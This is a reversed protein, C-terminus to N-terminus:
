RKKIQDWIENYIKKLEQDKELKQEFRKVTSSVSSYKGIGFANAITKLSDGRRCRILFIALARPENVTGRRSIFLEEQSIGYYGCVADIIEDRKPLFIKSEPIEEKKTGNSFRRKIKEIFPDSGFIVGPKDENFMGNVEVPIEKEMFEQYKIRMQSKSNGLMSAITKKELWRWQLSDSLYAQYSCWPYDGLKKELGAKLANRHIYRISELLHGNEQILISKYRGRFLQGDLHHRRNFEQTYVGDIQRMSRSLNGLPTQLLLHYHNKMLCYGAIHLSFMKSTKQVIELFSLYDTKNQYIREHRRGRNMVHYWADPYQIRLPRAM